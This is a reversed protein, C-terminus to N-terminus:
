EKEDVDEKLQCEGLADVMHEEPISRDVIEHNDSYIIGLLESVVKRDHDPEFLKGFRKFAENRDM